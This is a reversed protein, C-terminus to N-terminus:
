AVTPQGLKVLLRNLAARAIERPIVMRFGGGNVAMEEPIIFLASLRNFFPAWAWMELKVDQGSVSAQFRMPATLFGVGKQFLRTTPNLDAKYVFGEAKAWQEIVPKVDINSKFQIITRTNM